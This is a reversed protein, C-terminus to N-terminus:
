GLVYRLSCYLEMAPLYIALIPILRHGGGLFCTFVDSMNRLSSSFVGYSIAASLGGLLLMAVFSVSFSSPFLTGSLNDLIAHEPMTLLLIVVVMLVITLAFAQLGSRQQADLQHHRMHGLAKLLGTERSAEMMMHALIIWILLPSAENGIFSGLLWRIGAASLLSHIQSEPVAATWMWSLLMLLVQSLLLVLMAIAFPRRYRDSLFSSASPQPM